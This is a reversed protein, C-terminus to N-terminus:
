GRFQFYKNEYGWQLASERSLVVLKHCPRVMVGRLNVRKDCKNYIIKIYEETKLEEPYPTKNCEMNCDEDKPLRYM